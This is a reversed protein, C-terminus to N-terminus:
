RFNSPVPQSPNGSGTTDVAKVTFYAITTSPPMAYAPIQYSTQRVYSIPKLPSTESSTSRYIDYGAAGLVPPWFLKLGRQTHRVSVIPASLAGATPDPDSVLMSIEKTGATHPPVVFFDRAGKGTADIPVERGSPLVPRSSRVLTGDHNRYFVTTGNTLAVALDTQGDANVDVPTISSAPAPLITTTVERFAGLTDGSLVQLAGGGDPRKWGIVLDVNRDHDLYAQTIATAAGHLGAARPRPPFFQSSFHNAHQPYYLELTSSADAGAPLILHPVFGGSV